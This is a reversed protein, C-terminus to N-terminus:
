IRQRLRDGNQRAYRARYVATGVPTLDSLGV